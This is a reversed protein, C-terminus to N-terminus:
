GEPGTGHAWSCPSILLGDSPESRELLALTRPPLFVDGKHPEFAFLYPPQLHTRTHTKLCTRWSTQLAPDVRELDRQGLFPHTQDWVPTVPPDLGAASRHGSGRWSREKVREFLLPPLFPSRPNLIMEGVEPSQCLGLYVTSMIRCAPPERALPPPCSTGAPKTSEPVALFAM